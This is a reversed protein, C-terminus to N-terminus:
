SSGWGGWGKGKGQNEVSFFVGGGVQVGVGVGQQPVRMPVRVGKRFNGRNFVVRIKQRFNLNAIHFLSPCM